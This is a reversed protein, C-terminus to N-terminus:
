MLRSIACPGCGEAISGGMVLTGVSAGRAPAKAPM